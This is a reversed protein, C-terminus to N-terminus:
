AFKCFGLLGFDYNQDEFDGSTSSKVEGFYMNFDFYNLLLKKFLFLITISYHLLIAPNKFSEFTFNM